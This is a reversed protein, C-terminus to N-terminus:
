PRPRGRVELKQPFDRFQYSTVTVEAGADGGNAVTVATIFSTSNTLRRERNSIFIRCAGMRMFWDHFFWGLDRKSEAEILNSLTPRTKTTRPTYQHLARKLAADGGPRAADVLGARRATTSGRAHSGDPSRQVGTKEAQLLAERHGELYDLAARRGDKEQAVAQM